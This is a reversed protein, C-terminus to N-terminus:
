LSAGTDGIEGTVDRMSALAHAEIPEAVKSKALRQEYIADMLRVVMADAPSRNRLADVIKSRAASETDFAALLRKEAETYERNSMIGGTRNGADQGRERWACHDHTMGGM